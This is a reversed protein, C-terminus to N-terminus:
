KIEAEKNILKSGAHFTKEKEEQSVGWTIGLIQIRPCVGHLEWFRFGAHQKQQYIHVGTHLPCALM